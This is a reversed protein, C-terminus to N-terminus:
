EFNFLGPKLIALKTTLFELREKSKETAIVWRQQRGEINDKMSIMKWQLQSRNLIDEM